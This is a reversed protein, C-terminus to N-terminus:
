SIREVHGDAHIIARETRAALSKRTLNGAADLYHTVVRAPGRDTELTDIEFAPDSEGSGIEFARAELQDFGVWKRFEAQRARNTPEAASFPDEYLEVSIPGCALQTVNEANPYSLLRAESIYRLASGGFWMKAAAQLYFHPFLSRRGANESIDIIKRGTQPEIMKRLQSHSRGFLEYNAIETQSQWFMDDADTVYAANFGGHCALSDIYRGEPYESTTEWLLVQMSWSGLSFMQFSPREVNQGSSITLHDIDREQELKKLFRPTFRGRFFSSDVHQPLFGLGHEIISALDEGSVTDLDFCCTTLIFRKTM